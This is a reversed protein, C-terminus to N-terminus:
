QHVGSTEFQALLARTAAHKREREQEWPSVHGNVHPKAALGKLCWNRWAAQWNVKSARQGSEGSWYTGFKEAEYAIASEGAHPFKKAAWDRWDDPLTWDDALRSGRVVKVKEKKEEKPTPTPSPTPSAQALDNTENSVVHLIPPLKSRVEASSRAFKSRVDGGIKGNIAAQRKRLRYESLEKEARTNTLLDGDAVIADPWSLLKAKLHRYTRIDYNFIRANERDDDPLGGERSFMKMLMRFYLREVDHPMGETAECYDAISFSAIKM